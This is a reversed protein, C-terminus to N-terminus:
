ILLGSHHLRQENQLMAAHQSMSAPLLHAGPPPNSIQAWFVWALMDCTCGKQHPLPPAQLTAHRCVPCRQCTPPAQGKAEGLSALWFIAISVQPQRCAAHLAEATGVQHM